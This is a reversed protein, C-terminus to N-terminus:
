DALRAKILEGDRTSFKAKVAGGYEREIIRAKFVGDKIKLRRIDYGLDSIKQRMTEISIGPKDIQLAPMSNDKGAWAAGATVALMAAVAPIIIKRM